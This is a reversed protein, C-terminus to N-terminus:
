SGTTGTRPCPQGFQPAGDKDFTFSQARLFRKWGAGPHKAAHYVIYDKGGDKVFGAHGPATVGNGSAFVAEPHKQWAGADLPNGGRKLTLRGLCYYDSWSGSASYIIHTHGDHALVQPGENILPNGGKREWSLKPESILVRPGSITIPDSMPAIYLNQQVNTDGEWGSWIFYLKGSHEMITGDIAWKDAKEDAVKGAMEWKGNMPDTGKCRLAYMRHNSNHGDDAAVYIYSDGRVFHLEPAWLEKSWMGTAPPSWVLKTEAKALEALTRGRAVHIGGRGSHALYIYGDEGRIPFPDAGNERLVDICDIM